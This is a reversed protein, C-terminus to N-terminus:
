SLRCPLHSPTSAALLLPPLRRPPPSPPPRAQSHSIYSILTTLMLFGFGTYVFVIGPDHKIQVGSSGVLEDVIFSYGGTSIVKGSGPRRVGVFQGDTDYFVVQQLDKALM